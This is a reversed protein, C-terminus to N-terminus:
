FSLHPWWFYRVVALIGRRKDQKEDDPAIYFDLNVDQAGTGLLGLTETSTFSCKLLLLLLFTVNSKTNKIIGTVKGRVTLIAWVFM